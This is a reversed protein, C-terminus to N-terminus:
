KKEKRASGSGGGVGLGLLFAIRLVLGFALTGVNFWEEGDWRQIWGAEFGGGAYVGWLHGLDACVMALVVGRWVALERTVRLVLLENIAFLVYLSGINALLVQTVPQQAVEAQLAPTRYIDKFITAPTTAGLFRAPQFLTLYTGGLACLPEITRFYIRYIAAIPPLQPPATSAM